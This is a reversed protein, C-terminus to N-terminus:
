ARFTLSALCFFGLMVAYSWINADRVAQRLPLTDTKPDPRSFLISPIELARAEAACPLFREIVKQESWVSILFYPLLLVLFAVDALPVAWARTIASRAAWPWVIADLLTRAAVNDSGGLLAILLYYLIVTLPIGLITSLLNAVTTARLVPWMEACRLRRRIIGVIPFFLLFMFPFVLFGLALGADALLPVPRTTLPGM